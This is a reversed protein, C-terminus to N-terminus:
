RRQARQRMRPHGMRAQPQQRRMMMQQQLSLAQRPPKELGFQYWQEGFARLNMKKQNQLAILNEVVQPHDSTPEKARALVDIAADIEKADVLIWAYICWLLAEKKASRTAYDFVKKATELDSNAQYECVGLMAWAPWLSSLLSATRGKVVSRRLYPLADAAEGTSLQVWRTFLLMGIRANMMTGVGLQWKQLEFGGKLIEVAKDIHEAAQAQVQKLQKPTTPANQSAIQQVANVEMDSARNIAELRRSIGRNWWLFSLVGALVGPLVTWILSIGFLAPLAAVLFAVAVSFYITYM